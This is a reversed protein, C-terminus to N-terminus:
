RKADGPNKATLSAPRHAFIYARQSQHEVDPYPPREIVENVAFGAAKLYGAIEGADFFTFDLAVAEGWWEGLHVVQQGVHFAVLLVGGPRLVRRLERLAATVEARPVHIISYFATVGGFTADPIDLALMNGQRFTMGPNLQLAIEVMGPSIDIGWTEVGRDHVYRAVHGPGCGIDCAPGLDRVQEAFRDLLARDLPKHALEGYIRRAYEDAVRDYSTQLDYLQQEDL